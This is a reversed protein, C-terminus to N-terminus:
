RTDYRSDEANNNWRRDGGGRDYRDDRGRGKDGSEIAPNPGGCKFCKYYCADNKGNRCFVILECKPCIWDHPGRKRGERVNGSLGNPGKWTLLNDNVEVGMSRLEAQIKNAKEYYKGRAARREDEREDVMGQIRDGM